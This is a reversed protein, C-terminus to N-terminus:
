VRALWIIYIWVNTNRNPKERNQLARGRSFLSSYCHNVSWFVDKEFIQSMTNCGSIWSALLWSLTRSPTRSPLASSSNFSSPGPAVGSVPRVTCKTRRRERGCAAHPDYGTTLHTGGDIPERMCCDWMHVSTSLVEGSWKRSQFATTHENLEVVERKVQTTDGSSLTSGLTRRSHRVIKLDVELPTEHIKPLRVNTGVLQIHLFCVERECLEVSDSIIERSAPRRMSPSGARSRQSVISTNREVPFVTWGLWLPMLSIQAPCFGLVLVGVSLLFSFTSWHDSTSYTGVFVCEEWPSDWNYMKSPLSTAVLIIILPRLGVILCTDPVWLTASAQNNSLILKSGFIWILYTSVLFRSASMSVLPLKERSSRFWRRRKNLMILKEITEQLWELSKRESGIPFCLAMTLFPCFWLRHYQRFRSWEVQYWAARPALFFVRWMIQPIQDIRLLELSLAILPFKKLEVQEPCGTCPAVGLILKLVHFARVM